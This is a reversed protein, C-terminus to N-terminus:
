VKLDFAIGTGSRANNYITYTLSV